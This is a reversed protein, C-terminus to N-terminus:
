QIIIQRMRVRTPTGVTGQYELAGIDWSGSRANGLADTSLFPFTATLDEGLNRGSTTYYSAKNTDYKNVFTALYDTNNYLGNDDITSADSNTLATWESWDRFIQAVSAFTDTTDGDEYYYNYDIDKYAESWAWGYNEFNLINPAELDKVILNNKMVLTDIAWNTFMSGSTGGSIITNHLLYISNYNPYASNATIYEETYYRGIAVGGIGDNQKRNVFINNYILFRTDASETWGYNYFMNNWGMGATCSDVILNNSYVITTRGGSPTNYGINSIQTMDRHAGCGIEWAVGNSPTATPTVGDEETWGGTGTFTDSTHSTIHLFADPVEADNLGVAVCNGTHYNAEIDLDTDQLTTSTVTVGTADGTDFEYGNRLIITNGDITHFGQGGSVTIPDQSNPLNNALNEIINNKLTIKTGNVYVMETRGKGIVHNNEFFILSDRLGADDGGLQVIGSGVTRNDIITFGTFKINSLNYIWLIPSSDINSSIYVDGNHNPRWDPCVIVPNGSAFTNKSTLGYGLVVGYAGDAWYVTSDLGGSVFITDGPQVIAWNIGNGPGWYDTSDFDTWANTTDRGTDNGGTKDRNVYWINQANLTFAFLIFLLYKM